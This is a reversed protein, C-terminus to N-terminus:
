EIVVHRERVFEDAPIAAHLLLSALYPLAHELDDAAVTMYFHAYDHSTAANTLGGRNEIAADFMGPLIQETGKFVMHELFHAMGTWADPECRAGAKIWVDVVVVPTTNIEQHIVTLGNDLRVVSAPFSGNPSSFLSSASVNPASSM